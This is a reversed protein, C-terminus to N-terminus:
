SITGKNVLFMSCVLNLVIIQSRILFNGNGWKIGLIEMPFLLMFVANKFPQELKELYM